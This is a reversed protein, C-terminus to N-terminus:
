GSFKEPRLADVFEVMFSFNRYYPKQISQIFLLKLKLNIRLYFIVMFFLAYLFRVYTFMSILRNLIFYQLLLILGLWIRSPIFSTTLSLFGYTELSVPIVPYSSSPSSWCRRVSLSASDRGVSSSSSSGHRRPRLPRRHPLTWATVCFLDAFPLRTGVLIPGSKKRVMWACTAHARGEGSGSGPSALRTIAQKNKSRRRVSMQLLM